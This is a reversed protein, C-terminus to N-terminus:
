HASRANGSRKRRWGLLGVFGLGGLLLPLTAPLPVPVLTLSSPNFALETIYEDGLQVDVMQNTAPNIGGTNNSNQLLGSGDARLVIIPPHYRGTDVQRADLTFVDTIGVLENIQLGDSLVATPAIEFNLSGGFDYFESGTLDQILAFAPFGSPSGSPLTGNVSFSVSNLIPNNYATGPTLPGALDIHFEFSSVQNFTPTVASFDSAQFKIVEANASQSTAHNWLFSGAVSLMFVVGLKASSKIM